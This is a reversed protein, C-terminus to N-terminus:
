LSCYLWCNYPRSHSSSQVPGIAPLTLTLIFRLLIVQQKYILFCRKKEESKCQKSYVGMRLHIIWLWETSVRAQSGKPFILLLMYFGFYGALIM